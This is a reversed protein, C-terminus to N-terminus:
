LASNRNLGSLTKEVGERRMEEEDPLFRIQPVPRMKLKKNVLQQITYLNKQLLELAADPSAGLTSFFVAAYRGDSSVAARTLTVISGQPFEVERDIIGALEEKLLM